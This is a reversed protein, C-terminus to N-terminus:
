LPNPPCSEHWQKVVKYHEGGHGIGSCSYSCVTQGINNKSQGEFKWLHVVSAFAAGISLAMSVALMSRYIAERQKM